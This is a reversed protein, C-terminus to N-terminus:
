ESPHALTAKGLLWLVDALRNLYQILVGRVSGGAHALAVTEREARRCVVRAFDCAAQVPNDGPLVWGKFSGAEAELRAVAEDLRQVHRDGIAYEAQQLFRAQDEDGTALEAMLHVLDKQTDFVLARSPADALAARCLGLAANLEDVAGYAVVRLHDKPVRRGYMLSTEGADGTKTAISM